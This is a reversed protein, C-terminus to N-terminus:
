PSVPYQRALNRNMSKRALEKGVATHEMAYTIAQALTMGPKGLKAMIAKGLVELAKDCDEVDDCPEGLDLENMKAVDDYGNGLPNSTAVAVHGARVMVNSFRKGIETQHWQTLAHGVSKALPFAEMALRQEELAAETSTIQGAVFKAVLSHAKAVPTSEIQM